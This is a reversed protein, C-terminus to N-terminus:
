DISIVGFLYCSDTGAATGVSNDSITAILGTTAYHGSSFFMSSYAPFILCVAVRNGSVTQTDEFTKLAGNDQLTVDPEDVVYNISAGPTICTLWKCFM